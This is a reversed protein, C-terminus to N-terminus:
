AVNPGRPQKGFGGNGSTGGGSGQSPPPTPPASGGGAVGVPTTGGFVVKNSIDSGPYQSYGRFFYTLNGLNWGDLNRAPGLYKVAAGNFNSNTSYEVFYRIGLHPATKDVIAVSFIGNAATVSISQVSPAAITGGPAAGTQNVLSVIAIRLKEITDALRPDKTRIYPLHPLNLM